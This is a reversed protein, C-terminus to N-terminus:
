KRKWIGPVMQASCRLARRSMAQDVAAHPRSATTWPSNLLGVCSTATRKRSPTTSPATSGDSTVSSLLHNM